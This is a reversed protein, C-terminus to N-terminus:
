DGAPEKPGGAQAKEKAALFKDLQEKYFYHEPYKGALEREIDVAEQYRHLKYLVEAKTDLFAPNRPDKALAEEVLDLAEDLNKNQEAYIWALDNYAAAFDPKNEISEKLLSEQQQYSLNRHMLSYKYYASNSMFFVLFPIVFLLAINYLYHAIMSPIISGSWARLFTLLFGVIFILGMIGWDGWLQDVHNLGFLAGIFLVAFAKGKIKEVVSYFYGRYIIEEFFPAFIWAFVVFFLLSFVNGSSLSRSLPTAVTQARSSITVFVVGALFLATAVPALIAKFFFYDPKRFGLNGLLGRRSKRVAKYILVVVLANSFFTMSMHWLLRTKLAPMFYALLWYAGSAYFVLIFWLIVLGTCETFLAFHPDRYQQSSLLADGLNLRKFFARRRLYYLPSIILFALLTGLLWVWPKDKITESYIGSDQRQLTKADLYVLYLLFLFVVIGGV